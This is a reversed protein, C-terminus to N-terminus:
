FFDNNFCFLINKKLFDLFIIVTIEWRQKQEKPKLARYHNEQALSIFKPSSSM